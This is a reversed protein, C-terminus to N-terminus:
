SLEYNDNFSYSLESRKIASYNEMTPHVVTQKILWTNFSMQTTKEREREREREREKKKKQINNYWYAAM